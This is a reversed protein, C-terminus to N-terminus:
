LIMGLSNTISNSYRKPHLMHNEPEMIFDHVMQVAEANQVHIHEKECVSEMFYQHVLKRITRWRHGYNMVLIHDGQTILRAVLSSPRNSYINSKKDLLNKLLKRDSIVLTTNTFRKLSFIGGFKQAWETLRIEYTLCVRRAQSSLVLKCFIGTLQQFKINM